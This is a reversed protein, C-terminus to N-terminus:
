TRGCQITCKTCECVGQFTCSCKACMVDCGVAAARAPVARSLALVAAALGALGWKLLRVRNM